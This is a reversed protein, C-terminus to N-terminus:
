DSNIEKSNISGDDYVVIVPDNLLKLLKILEDILEIIKNILVENLEGM